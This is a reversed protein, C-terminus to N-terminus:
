SSKLNKLAGDKYFDKLFRPMKKILKKSAGKKQIQPPVYAPLTVHATSETEEPEGVGKVNALRKLVDKSGGQMNRIDHPTPTPDPAGKIFQALQSLSWWQPNVGEEDRDEDTLSRYDRRITKYRLVWLPLIYRSDSFIRFDGVSTTKTTGGVLGVCAFMLHRDDTYGMSTEPNTASYIGVGFASGHEVRVGAKGPIL